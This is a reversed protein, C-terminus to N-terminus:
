TGGRVVLVSNTGGLETEPARPASADLVWRKGDVLFSYLYRGPRIPVVASWVGGAPSTRQMPTARPNWDNFDGTVAVQGADKAVLVFQVDTTPALRPTAHSVREVAAARTARTIAAWSAPGVIAGLIFVAAILMRASVRVRRAADHADDMIRDIARPSAAPAERLTEVIDDWEPKRTM